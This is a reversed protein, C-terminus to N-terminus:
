ARRGPPEYICFPEEALENGTAAYARARCGGCVTRFGCVGCKGELLAPDRLRAFVVSTDWIEALPTTRVNGSSIPLYGCPYVEGAHSVFCVHQGALCGKTVASMGDGRPVEIGAERAKQRMIRFYHPACTAKLEIRVHQSAAFLWELVAEYREPAIM